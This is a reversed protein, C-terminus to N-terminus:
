KTNVRSSNKLWKPLSRIQEHTLKLVVFCILSLPKYGINIISEALKHTNLLETLDQLCVSAGFELTVIKLDQKSIKNM